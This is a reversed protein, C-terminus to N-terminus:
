SRSWAAGARRSTRTSRSSRPLSRARSRRLPGATRRMPPTRTKLTPTTSTRPAPTNGADTTPRTTAPSGIRRDYRRREDLDNHMEAEDRLGAGAPFGRWLGTRGRRIVRRADQVLAAEPFIRQIGALIPAAALAIQRMPYWSGGNRGFEAQPKHRPRSPPPMAPIHSAAPERPEAGPRDGARIAGAPNLLSAQLLCKRPRPCQHRPRRTRAADARAPMPRAACGWGQSIVSWGAAEGIMSIIWRKLLPSRITTVSMTRNTSASSEPAHHAEVGARLGTGDFVLWLVSISTTQVTTGIRIRTPM